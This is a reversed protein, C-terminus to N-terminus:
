CYGNRYIGAMETFALWKPLHRGNRYIAYGLMNLVKKKYGFKADPVQKM